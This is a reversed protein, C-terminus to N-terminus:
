GGWVFRALSSAVTKLIESFNYNPNDKRCSQVVRQRPARSISQHEDRWFLPAVSMDIVGKKM